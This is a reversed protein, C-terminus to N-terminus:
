VCSCCRVSIALFAPCFRDGRLIRDALRAERVGRAGLGGAKRMGGCARRADRAAWLQAQSALVGFGDGTGSQGSVM